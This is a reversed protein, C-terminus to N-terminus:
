LQFDKCPNPGKSQASQKEYIKRYIKREVKAVGAAQTYLDKAKTDYADRAEKYQAYESTSLIKKAAEKFGQVWKEKFGPVGQEINKLMEQWKSLTFCSEKQNVMACTKTNLAQSLTFSDLAQQRKNNYDQIAQALEGELPDASKKGNAADSVAKLDAILKAFKQKDLPECSNAELSGQLQDRILMGESLGRTATGAVKGAATSIQPADPNILRPDQRADLFAQELNKKKGIQDTLSTGTGNYGVNESTASSVVCTKDSALSLTNGSYCSMDIIALKVGKAEALKQVEQLKDLNFQGGVTDVEHTDQGNRPRGHTALAILLQDDKGLTGKEIKANLNDIEDNLNKSTMQANRGRTLQNAIADSMRHGGDFYTTTDWGGAQTGKLFSM